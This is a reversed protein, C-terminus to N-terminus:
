PIYMAMIILLQPEHILIPNKKMPAFELTRYHVLLLPCAGGPFNVAKSVTRTNKTAESVLYFTLNIVSRCYIKHLLSPFWIVCLINRAFVVNEGGKDACVRVPHWLGFTNLVMLVFVLSLKALNNDACHIYIIRSSFGDIRGHIM